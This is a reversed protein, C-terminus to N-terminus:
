LRLKKIYTAFDSNETLPFDQNISGPKGHNPFNKVGQGWTWEQPVSLDKAWGFDILFIIGGKNLVNGIHIDGHRIKYKDLSDQIESIQKAFDAIHDNETIPKGVYTIELTLGDDILNLLKQSINNM